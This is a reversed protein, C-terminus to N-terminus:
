EEFRMKHALTSFQKYLSINNMGEKWERRERERESDRKRKRKRERERERGKKYRERRERVPCEKSYAVDLLLMKDEFQQM